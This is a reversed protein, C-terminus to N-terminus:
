IWFWGGWGDILSGDTYFIMSTAYRTTMTLLERAAVVLYMYAQVGSLAEELLALLVHRTFSESPVVNLPFVDSYGAICRGLNLERLTKLRKRLPHDLRYFVAV